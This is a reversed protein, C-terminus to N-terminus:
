WPPQGNVILFNITATTYTSDPHALLLLVEMIASLEGTNNSGVNAGLHFPSLQDVNVPGYAKVIPTDLYYGVYGWGAVTSRTARGSSGSGDTYFRIHQPPTTQLPIREKGAYKERFLRNFQTRQEDTASYDYKIMAPPKPPKSGLKVSIHTLLLYHDSPFGTNHSAYCQRVTPLWQKRCVVKDLSQFLSPDDRM